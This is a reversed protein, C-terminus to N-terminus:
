MVTHPQALSPHSTPSSQGTELAAAGTHGAAARHGEARLHVDCNTGNKSKWKNVCITNTQVLSLKTMWPTTNPCFSRNARSRTGRTDQLLAPGAMGGPFANLSSLLWRLTSRSYLTSPKESVELGTDGPGLLGKKPIGQLALEM